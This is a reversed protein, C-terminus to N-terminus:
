RSVKVIINEDGERVGLRRREFKTLLDNSSSLLQELRFRATGHPRIQRSANLAKQIAQLLFLDGPTISGFISSDNVPAAAKPPAKAKVVAVPEDAKSKGAILIYEEVNRSHFARTFLDEKHVEVVFTSSTLSEKFLSIDELGPLFCINLSVDFKDSIIEEEISTSVEQEVDKKVSITKPFGLISRNIGSGFSINGFVYSSKIADQADEGKYIPFNNLRFSYFSIM